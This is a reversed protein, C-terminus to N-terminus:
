LKLILRLFRGKKNTTIIRPYYQMKKIRSNLFKNVIGEFKTAARFYDCKEVKFGSKKALNMLSNKSFHFTHPVLHISSNLMASNECNPVEIFFIGNPKLNKQINKFFQMPNTLHELVHSMWIVDFKEKIDFNEASGIICHSNNLKQNILKVNNEDPEIATVSFGKKDFWYTAQGQGAGIELISVNKELFPKCYKFQSIWHRKKGQSDIDAYNNEILTKADWLNNEGWFEKNYISKTKKIVESEVEGTVYLNCKKCQFVPLELFSNDTYKNMSTNGCSICKM